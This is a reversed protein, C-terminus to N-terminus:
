PNTSNMMASSSCRRRLQSPCWRLFRGFQDAYGGAIDNLAIDVVEAEGHPTAGCGCKMISVRVGALRELLQARLLDADDRAKLLTNDEINTIM